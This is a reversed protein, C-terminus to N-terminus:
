RGVGSTAAKATTALVTEVHHFSGGQVRYVSVAPRELDGDPDFSIPGSVADPLRTAQIAARVSGRTVPQGRSALRGVADAIITVAAYATLSYGSAESGFRGRFRAAWAVAAPSAAPDPAVNTVYWGEAGTARAQIPFAANYLSETGLLRVGPLIEPVQRALKVGVAFRAGVYLADPRQAALARLEPRYDQDIWGLLVTDLVAIGLGAARRAFAEVLRDGLSSGDRILVVQRVGLRAHAFRAMADGQAVDTGVTRFYVTRGGPRFHSRMSPDTIDFTTASPTITALSARSLLGVIARGEGSTQPGVAAIVAPDAVFQEYNALAARQRARTDDGQGASDLVLPELAYGGALGRGNVDEVALQVGHLIPVGWRADPGTAPLSVGLKLM